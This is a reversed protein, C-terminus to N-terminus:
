CIYICSAMLLDFAESVNKEKSLWRLLSLDFLICYVGSETLDVGVISWSLGYTNTTM